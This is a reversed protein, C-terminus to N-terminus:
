NVWIRTDAGFDGYIDWEEAPAILSGWDPETEIQLGDLEGDGYEVDLRVQTLHWRSPKPEPSGPPPVVHIRVNKLCAAERRSQRWQRIAGIV